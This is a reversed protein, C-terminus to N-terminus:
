LMEAAKQMTYLLIYLYTDTAIAVIFHVLLDGYLYLRLHLTSTDTIQCYIITCLMKVVRQYLQTSKTTEWCMLLCM